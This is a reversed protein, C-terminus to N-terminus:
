FDADWDVLMSGEALNIEKVFQGLVFPILRERDGKTVVVDNAGTALMEAVTGFDVCELNKVRLGVLDAWYYHGSEAPPFRDKPVMVKRARLKLAADRDDVGELRAVVVDGHMRGSLVKYEMQGYEDALLWPAYALINRPPDTHSHVKVWGKVGFAGAIEGVIVQKAEM